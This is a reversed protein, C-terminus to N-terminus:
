VTGLWTPTSTLSAHLLSFYVDLLDLQHCVEGIFTSHKCCIIFGMINGNNQYYDGGSGDCFTNHVILHIPYSALIM